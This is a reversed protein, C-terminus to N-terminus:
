NHGTEEDQYDRNAEGPNAIYAGMGRKKVIYGKLELMRYARSITNVCVELDQTLKNISPLKDGPKLIGLSCAIVIQDYIQKYLPVSSSFDIAIHLKKMVDDKFLPSPFARGM